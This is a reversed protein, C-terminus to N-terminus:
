QKLDKLESRLGHIERELNKERGEIAEERIKKAEEVGESWVTKSFEKASLAASVTGVLLPRIVKPLVVTSVAGLVFTFLPKTALQIM